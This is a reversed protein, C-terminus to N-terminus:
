EDPGTVYYPAVSIYRAGMTAKEQLTEILKDIGWDRIELGDLFNDIRNNRQTAGIAWLPPDDEYDVLFEIDDESLLGKLSGKAQILRNASAHRRDHTPTLPKSKM